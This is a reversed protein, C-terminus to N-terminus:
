DQTKRAVWQTSFNLKIIPKDVLNALFVAVLASQRVAIWQSM